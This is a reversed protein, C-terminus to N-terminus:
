EEIRNYFKKLENDILIEVQTAIERIESQANPIKRLHIFNAWQNVNGTIYLKTATTNPLVGRANEPKVKNNILAMYTDQAQLSLVEIKTKNGVSLDKNIIFDIDKGFKDLSYNCYRQSQQSFSLDRHRVLQHSTARDTTIKFTFSLFEPVSRYIDDTTLIEISSIDEEKIEREDERFLLPYELSLFYRLKSLIGELDYPSFRGEKFLFDLWGRVNGIMLIDKREEDLVINIRSNTDGKRGLLIQLYYREEEIETNFGRIAIGVSGHELVSFHKNKLITKIFTEASGEKILHQSNYCIRGAEEIKKYINPEDVLEIEQNIIKM